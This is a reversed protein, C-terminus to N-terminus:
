DRSTLLFSYSIQHQGQNPVTKLVARYVSGKYDTVVVSIKGWRFHYTYEGLGPNGSVMLQYCKGADNEMLVYDVGKEEFVALRTLVDMAIVFVIMFIISATIVELLTSAKLKFFWVM